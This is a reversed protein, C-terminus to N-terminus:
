RHHPSKYKIGAGPFTLAIAHGTHWNTIENFMNQLKSISNQQCPGGSFVAAARQGSVVCAFVLLHAQRPKIM